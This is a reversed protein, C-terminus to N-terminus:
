KFTLNLNRSLILVFTTPNIFFLFKYSHILLVGFKSFPCKLAELVFSWSCGPVGAWICKKLKELKFIKKKKEFFPFTGSHRICLTKLNPDAELFM